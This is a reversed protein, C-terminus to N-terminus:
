RFLENQAAAHVVIAADEPLMFGEEALARAARAIQNVYDDHGKYRERISLRDDGTAEREAATEAFPVFAASLTCLVDTLPWNQGLYTGLPAEIDALRVGGVDNGDEDVEPVQVVAEPASPPAVLVPPGEDPPPVLTMLRSEPPPTSDRVWRDLHLLMARLVPHWDLNGRPLECGPMDYVIAHAGGAVDYMRVNEPLPEDETGKPGTRALSARLSYYDNAMNTAILRPAETGDSEAEQMIQRYTFPPEHVGRLAPDSFNPFPSAVSDPGTGSQLIPLLGAHGAHLHMGDFVREGDLSNFGNLLFTKLFRATQSYGTALTRDVASGVPSGPDPDLGRLWAAIDRVAALGAGELYRTSGAEDVFAPLEIGQGLEWSPIALLFGRNELFGTGVNLSGTPLPIDRPSNYLSHAVPRGRNEIDVLLTGNGDGHDAPVILILDTTYEVKGDNDKDAKAMDPIPESTSLEGTVKGTIRVYDGAEFSGYPEESAVEFATVEAEAATPMATLFPVTLAVSVLAGPISTKRGM